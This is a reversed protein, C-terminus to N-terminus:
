EVEPVLLVPRRPRRTLTKGVPRSLIRPWGAPGHSTLGIVIMLANLTDAIEDLVQAPDGRREVFHTNLDPFAVLLREVQERIDGLNMWGEVEWDPMDPNIPYDEHTAVHVVHVAASIRHGLGLATSLAQRGAPSDKYGVVIASSTGM